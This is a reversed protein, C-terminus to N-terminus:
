FTGVDFYYSNIFILQEDEDGTTKNHYESLLPPYLCASQENFCFLGREEGDTKKLNIDLMAAKLIRLACVGPKDERTDLRALLAQATRYVGVLSSEVFRIPVYGVMSRACTELVGSFFNLGDGNTPGFNIVAAAQSEADGYPNSAPLGNTASEVLPHSHYKCDCIRILMAAQQAFTSFEGAEVHWVDGVVYTPEVLIVEENELTGNAPNAAENAAAMADGGPTIRETAKLSPVGFVNNHISSNPVSASTNTFVMLRLQYRTTGFSSALFGRVKAGMVHVFDKVWDSDVGIVHVYLPELSLSAPTQKLNNGESSIFYDAKLSLYELTAVACSWGATRLVEGKAKELRAATLLPRFTQATDERNKRWLACEVKHKGSKWELAQHKLGCYWIVKCGGCRLLKERRRGCCACRRFPHQVSLPLTLHPLETMTYGKEGVGIRWGYRAHFDVIHDAIFELAAFAALMMESTPSQEVVLSQNRAIPNLKTTKESPLRYTVRPFVLDSCSGEVKVRPYRPSENDHHGHNSSVSHHFDLLADIDDFPIGEVPGLQVLVEGEDPLYSDCDFNMLGDNNFEDMVYLADGIDQYLHLVAGIPHPKISGVERYDGNSANEDKPISQFLFAHRFPRTNAGVPKVEGKAVATMETKSTDKTIRRPDSPPEPVSFFTGEGKSLKLAKKNADRQAKLKAVGTLGEPDPIELTREFDTLSSKSVSLKGENASETFRMRYFVPNIRSVLEFLLPNNGQPPVSDDCAETSLCSKTDLWQIVQDLLDNFENFVGSGSLGETMFPFWPLSGEEPLTTRMGGSEDSSPMWWTLRRDKFLAATFDIGAEAGSAQKVDRRVGEAIQAWRDSSFLDLRQHTQGNLVAVLALSTIHARLGSPLKEWGAKFSRVVTERSPNAQVTAYLLHWSPAAAGLALPSPRGFLLHFVPAAVVRTPPDFHWRRPFVLVWCWAEYPTSLDLPFTQISTSPTGGRLFSEAVSM